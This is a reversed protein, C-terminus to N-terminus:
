ESARSIDPFSSSRNRSTAGLRSQGRSLFKLRLKAQTRSLSIRRPLPANTFADNEFDKETFKGPYRGYIGHEDIMNAGEEYDYSQGIRDTSGPPYYAVGDLPRRSNLSDIVKHPPTARLAEENSRKVAELPSYRLDRNRANSAADFPGEHHFIYPSTHDLGDIIDAGHLRRAPFASQTTARRQSRKAKSKEAPKVSSKDCDSSSLIPVHDNAHSHSPDM